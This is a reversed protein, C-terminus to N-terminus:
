SVPSVPPLQKSSVVPPRGRECVRARYSNNVRMSWVVDCTLRRGAACLHNCVSVWSGRAPTMADGIACAWLDDLLTPL